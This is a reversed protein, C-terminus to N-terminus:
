VEREEGSIFGPDRLKGVENMFKDSFKHYSMTPSQDNTDTTKYVPCLSVIYYQSTCHDSCQLRMLKKIALFFEKPNDIWDVDVSLFQESQEHLRGSSLIYSVTYTVM